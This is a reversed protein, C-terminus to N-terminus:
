SENSPLPLLLVGKRIGEALLKMLQEESLDLPRLCLNGDKWWSLRIVVEDPNKRRLRELRGEDGGEFIVVAPEVLEDAYKTKRM